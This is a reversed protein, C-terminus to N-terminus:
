EYGFDCAYKAWRRMIAQEKEANTAHQNVRYEGHGELRKELHPLMVDFGDLGLQSYIQEVIGRPEKVLDEYRIQMFDSSPLGALQRDFGKYMEQM